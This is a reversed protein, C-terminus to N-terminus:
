IAWAPRSCATRTDWSTLYSLDCAQSWWLQRKGSGSTVGKIGATLDRRIKPWGPRCLSVRNWFLPPLLPSCHSSNSNFYLNWRNTDMKKKKFYLVWYWHPYLLWTIDLVLIPIISWLKRSGFGAIIQLPSKLENLAKFIHSLSLVRRIQYAYPGSNSGWCHLFLHM